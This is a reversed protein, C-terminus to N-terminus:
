QAVNRVVDWRVDPRLEECLVPSGRERTAREIEPCLEAPVQRTGKVMQSIFQPSKNVAQALVSASGCIVCARRIPTNESNM